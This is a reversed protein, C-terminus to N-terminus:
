KVLRKSWERLLEDDDGDEDDSHGGSHAEAMEEDSGGGAERAAASPHPKLAPPFPPPQPSRCSRHTCCGCAAATGRLWACCLLLAGDDECETVWDLDAAVCRGAAAVARGLTAGGALRANAKALGRAQGKCALVAPCPLSAGSFTATFDLSGQEGRVSFRAESGSVVIPSVSEEELSDRLENIAAAARSLAAECM